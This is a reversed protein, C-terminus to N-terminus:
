NQAPLVDSKRLLAASVLAVIFGIPFIETFTIPMRVLPNQLATKWGENKTAWAELEPGTLGAAEQKALLSDFYDNYFEYGTLGLYIEWIVVYAIGAVVAMMVGLGLAKSFKIVGGQEIDRYRKVGFFILSLAIFMILFGVAQSGGGDGGFELGFIMTIITAIGSLSGFILASRFM